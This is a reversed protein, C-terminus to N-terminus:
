PYNIPTLRTFEKIVIEKRKEGVTYVLLAKGEFTKVACVAMQKQEKKPNHLDVPVPEKHQRTQKVIIKYTNSENSRFWINGDDARNSHILKYCNNDIYISDPIIAVKSELELYYNSGYRGAIGGSWNQSTASKLQPTPTACAIVLLVACALHLIKNKM